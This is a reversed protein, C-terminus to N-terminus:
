RGKRFINSKDDKQLIYWADEIRSESDVSTDDVDVVFGDVANDVDFSSM